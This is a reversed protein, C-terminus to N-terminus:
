VTIRSTRGLRRWAGTSEPRCIRLTGRRLPPSGYFLGDWRVGDPRPLVHHVKVDWLM